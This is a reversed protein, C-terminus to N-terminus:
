PTVLEGRLMLRRLPGPALEGRVIAMAASPFPIGAKVETLGFQGSAPGIRVDGCLALVLGGAVAHGNVATVVPRPFTYWGAFMANVDRALAALEDRPLEPV